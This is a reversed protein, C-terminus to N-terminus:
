PPSVRASGQIGEFLGTAPSVFVFSNSFSVIRGTPQESSTDLEQLQFQMLGIDVVEGTVGSIQVRDGIRMRVKGILLFYGAVSLIVNQLAVAIGASVLGLFTALSTLNFEFAFLVILVLILWFLVQLAILIMRRSNSDRIHRATVRRSAAAAGILCAIVVALISVRILLDKRADKYRNAISARWSVLHSRYLALLLRQKALAAIAPSAKATEVAFVKLRAEQQRLAGLNDSTITGALLDSSRFAENLSEDLPNQLHLSSQLLKDTLAIAEDLTRGKRAFMSVESTRALIGSPSRKLVGSPDVSQTPVLPPPSSATSSAEPVTRELGDVFAELGTTETRGTDTARAYNLLNQLSTSIAQLLTLRGQADDIEVDLKKRDARSAMLRKQMISKLDSAAQQAESQSQAEMVVLHQFDTGSSARNLQGKPDASASAGNEFAVVERAFDFSFRVVQVGIPRNGELFLMDTPETAIQQQVSLLRYWNITEVLYSLVQQRPPFNYFAAPLSDSGPMGPILISFLILVCPFRLLFTGPSKAKKMQERSLLEDDM